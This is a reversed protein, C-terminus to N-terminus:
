DEKKSDDQEEYDREDRVSENYVLIKILLRVIFKFWYVQSTSLLEKMSLLIVSCDYLSKCTYDGVSCSASTACDTLM